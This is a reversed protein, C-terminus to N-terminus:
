KKNYFKIIKIKDDSYLPTQTYKQYIQADDILMDCDFYNNFRTIYVEDFNDMISEYLQKGGIVVVDCKKSINIIASISRITEVGEILKRTLVINRRNKLPFKDGLSLYTNYGMVVTKKSTIKVFHSIDIPNYFPIANSKAV